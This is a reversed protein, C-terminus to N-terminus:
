KAPASTIIDAIGDAGGAAIDSALSGWPGSLRGKPVAGQQAATGLVEGTRANVVSWAVDLTEEGPRGAAVTVRGRIIFDPEGGTFRVGMGDLTRRMASGLAKDGDGPLGTLPELRVVPVRGPQQAGPPPEAAVDGHLASSLRSVVEDAMRDITAPGAHAWVDTPLSQDLGGMPAAGPVALSWHLVKTAIGTETQAAIVWAGPVVERTAAPVEAELLRKVIANALAAGTASDDPPRVVVGRPARPAVAANIGDHRFPQPIDGCAGLLFVPVLLLRRM